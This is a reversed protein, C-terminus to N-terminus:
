KVHLVGNAQARLAFRGLQLIFPTMQGGANIIVTPQKPTFQPILVNAQQNLNLNMSVSKTWPHFGLSSNDVTKQWRYRGDKQLIFRYFQYGKQSFAVGLTLSQAVTLQQAYLMRDRLLNVDNRTDQSGGTLNISISVAAIVVGIIVLVVLMELLSFGGSYQQHKPIKYRGTVLKLKRVKAM